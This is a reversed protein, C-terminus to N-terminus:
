KRDYGALIKKRVVHQADHAFGTEWRGLAGIPLWKRSVSSSYIWYNNQQFRYHFTVARNIGRNLSVGLEM